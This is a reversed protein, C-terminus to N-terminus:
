TISSVDDLIRVSSSFLSKRFPKWFTELLKVITPLLTCKTLLPPPFSNQFLFTAETIKNNYLFEFLVNQTWYHKWFFFIGNIHYHPFNQYLWVPWLHCYPAYASFALYRLTCVGVWFINYKNSKWPLMTVQVHGLAASCYMAQKINM